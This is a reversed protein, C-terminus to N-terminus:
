MLEDWWGPQRAEQEADGQGFPEHHPARQRQSSCTANIFFRAPRETVFASNQAVGAFGSTLEAISLIVSPPIRLRSVSTHVYSCTHKGDIKV